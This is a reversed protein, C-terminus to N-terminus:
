KRKLVHLYWFDRPETCSAELGCVWCVDDHFTAVEPARNGFHNWCTNCVWMVDDLQKQSKKKWIKNLEINQKRLEESHEFAQTDAYIFEEWDIFREKDLIRVIYVAKMPAFHLQWKELLKMWPANEQGLKNFMETDEDKITYGDFFHEYRIYKFVSDVEVMMWYYEFTKWVMKDIHSYYTRKSVRDTSCLRDLLKQTNM